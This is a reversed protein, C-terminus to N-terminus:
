YDFSDETEKSKRQNELNKMKEDFSKGSREYINHEATKSRAEPFARDYFNQEESLARGRSFSFIDDM